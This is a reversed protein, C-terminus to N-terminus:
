WSAGDVKRVPVGELAAPDLLRANVGVREHPPESLPTWHTLIGCHACRHNALCSQELDDRVYSQFKGAIELEDSRFYAGRFGTKM